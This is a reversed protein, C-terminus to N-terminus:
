AMAQLAEGLDRGLRTEVVLRKFEYATPTPMEQAVTDVAQLLGYGARLSGAILQLTDELQDAFAASRRETLIRLGFRVAVLTAGMLVLGLLLGSFMIGLVLATVALSAELLAFEGPRLMVGAKELVANLSGQRGRRELAREAALSAQGTMGVVLGRVFGRVGRRSTPGGLELGLRPRRRRPAVLFLIAISMAVFLVAAGAELAWEKGLFGPYRVTGAQPEAPAPEAAVPQSQPVGPAAPLQIARTAEATVGDRSVSIHLRAADNALSTFTLEYQNVLESAIQDYIGTLAAPEEAPVIRGSSADALAALPESDNEPSQLEVAYFGVGARLLAATAQELDASSVTDGGDSLLLLSRRANEGESFQGLAAIIADYLATEGGAELGQIAEVTLGPDTSFPSALQPASGFGLVAIRITAPLREVFGLAASKAEQLPGGSMSGSTDLVLVVELEDNPLRTVTVPRIEGNETITFDSAALDKGVLQRPASVTVTIQPHAGADIREVQLLVPGEDIGFGAAGTGVALFFVIAVVGAQASTLSAARM